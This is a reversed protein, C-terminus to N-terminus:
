LSSQGARSQASTGPAQRTSVRVTRAGRKGRPEAGIRMAAERSEQFDNGHEILDVGLARMAANKERSNGHPVVIVTPLRHARAALGLSQGHNGRTASVVGPCAPEAERLRQLYVLGGRVKFAGTPNHNEHKVLVETGVRASLLPWALTPTPTLHRHVIAAADRLAALPMAPAAPFANTAFAARELTTLSM